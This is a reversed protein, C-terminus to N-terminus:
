DVELILVVELNDRLGLIMCGHPVYFVIVLIFGFLFIDFTRMGKGEWRGCMLVEASYPRTVGSATVRACCSTLRCVVFVWRMLEPKM